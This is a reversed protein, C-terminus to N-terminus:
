QVFVIFSNHNSLLWSHTSVYVTCICVYLMCYTRIVNVIRVICLYVMSYTCIHMMRVIYVYM